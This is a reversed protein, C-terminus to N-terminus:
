YYNNLARVHAPLLGDARCRANAYALNPPAERACLDILAEESDGSAIWPEYVGNGDADRPEVKGDGDLDVDKNVQDQAAFFYDAHMSDYACWEEVGCSVQLPNPVVDDTNPHRITLNVEILRVPNSDPCKTRSPGYVTHEPTLVGSGDYCTPFQMHTAWNQTCSYPPTSMFGVPDLPGAGCNYAPDHALLQIGDPLPQAEERQAQTSGPARYYLIGNPVAEDREVPFWSASTLYPANACSTGATAGSARLSEWTSSDSTSRNAIQRHLHGSGLVIPDVRNTAYVDCSVRLSAAEAPKQTLMLAALLAVIFACVVRRMAHSVANPTISHQMM